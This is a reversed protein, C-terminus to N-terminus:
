LLLLCMRLKFLRHLVANGWAGHIPIFCIQAPCVQWMPWMTISTDKNTQNFILVCSDNKSYSTSKLPGGFFESLFEQLILLLLYPQAVDRLLQTYLLQPKM